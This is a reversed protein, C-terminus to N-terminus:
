EMPVVTITGQCVLQQDELRLEQITTEQGLPISLSELTAAVYHHDLNHPVLEPQHLQLESASLLQLGLRLSVPIPGHKRTPLKAHLVLHEPELNLQFIELEQPLEQDLNLDAWHPLLLKMMWDSLAETLLPSELSANLDSEQLLLNGSIVIPKLLRLPKGRMVQGLNILIEAGSLEIQSLHLGRYVARDAAIFVQCIQGSLIQRDSGEIRVQLNEIHEVQSRLFLRVAPTLISRIIHSQQLMAIDSYQHKSRSYQAKLAPSM